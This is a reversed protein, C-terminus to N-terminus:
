IQEIQKLQNNCKLNSYLQGLNFMEYLHMLIFSNIEKMWSIKIVQLGHNILLSENSKMVFSLTRKLIKIEHMHIFNIDNM